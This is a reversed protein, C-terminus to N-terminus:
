KANYTKIFDCILVTCKYLVIFFNSVIWSVNSALEWIVHTKKESILSCFTDLNMFILCCSQMVTEYFNLTHNLLLIHCNELRLGETALRGVFSVLETVADIFGSLTM